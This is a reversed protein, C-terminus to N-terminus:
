DYSSMKKLFGFEDILGQELERLNNELAETLNSRDQLIPWNRRKDSMYKASADYALDLLGELFQWCTPKLPIVQKVAKNYAELSNNTRVNQGSVCWDDITYRNM